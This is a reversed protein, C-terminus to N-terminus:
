LKRILYFSRSKPAMASEAFLLAYFELFSFDNDALSKFIITSILFGSIVFFFM